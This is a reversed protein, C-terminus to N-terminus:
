SLQRIGVAAKEVGPVHVGRASFLVQADHGNLFLFSCLQHDSQLKTRPLAASAVSRIVATSLSSIFLVAPGGRHSRRWLALQRAAGDPRRFLPRAHDAM